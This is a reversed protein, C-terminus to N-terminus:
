VQTFRHFQVEVKKVSKNTELAKLFSLGYDWVVNLLVLKSLPTSSTLLPELCVVPDVKDMDIRVVQM